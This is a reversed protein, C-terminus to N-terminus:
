IYILIYFVLNTIIYFVYDDYQESATLANLTSIFITFYVCANFVLSLYRRQHIYWCYTSAVQRIKTKQYFYVGIM